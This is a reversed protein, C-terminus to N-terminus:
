EFKWLMVLRKCDPAVATQEAVPPINCTWGDIQERTIGRHMADGHKWLYPFSLIAYKSVRMVEKFAEAQSTALHEWVQCAIFLDYQKDTCPWPIQTADHIIDSKDLGMTDCEDFMPMGNTGLELVSKPDVQQSFERVLKYYGWRASAQTTNSWYKGHARCHEKYTSHDIFRM